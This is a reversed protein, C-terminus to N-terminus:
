FDIRRGTLYCFGYGNAREQDLEQQIKAAHEKWAQARKRAITRGTATTIRGRTAILLLAGFIAGATPRTEPAQFREGKIQFLVM